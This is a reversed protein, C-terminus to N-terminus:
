GDTRKTYVSADFANPDFLDRRSFTGKIFYLNVMNFSKNTTESFHSYSITVSGHKEANVQSFVKYSRTQRGLHCLGELPSRITEM